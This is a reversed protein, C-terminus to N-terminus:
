LAHAKVRNRLARLVAPKTDSWPEKFGAAAEVFRIATQDGVGRLACLVTARNAETQINPYISILFSQIAEAQAPSVRPAQKFSLLLNIASAIRAALEETAAGKLYLDCIELILAVSDASKIEEALGLVFSIDQPEQVQARLGEFGGDAYASAVAAWKALPVVRTGDSQLGQAKWQYTAGLRALEESLGPQREIAAQLLHEVELHGKKAKKRLTAINM